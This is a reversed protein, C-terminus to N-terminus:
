SVSFVRCEKHLCLNNYQTYLGHPFYLSIFLVPFESPFFLYTEQHFAYFVLVYCPFKISVNQNENTKILLLPYIYIFVTFIAGYSHKSYSGGLSPVPLLSSYFYCKPFLLFIYM